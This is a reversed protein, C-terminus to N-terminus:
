AISLVVSMTHRDGKFTHRAAEIIYYGKIGANALEVYVGRGALFAPVGFCDNFDLKKSEKNKLGLLARGYENVIGQPLKADINQVELLRGWKQITSSDKYVHAYRQKTDPDEQILKIENKADSISRSYKYQGAISEDGIIYPIINNHLYKLTLSGNIDQFTYLKGTRRVTDGIYKAIIDLLKKQDFIMPEHVYGTDDLQGVRLGFDRALARIVDTAKVSKFTYSENAQLYILQDNFILTITEGNDDNVDFLTGYFIGVNDIKFSASGGMAFKISKDFLITASLQACSNEQTDLSVETTLQTLDYVIGNENNQYLLTIVAM